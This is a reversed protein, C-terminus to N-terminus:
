SPELLFRRSAMLPPGIVGELTPGQGLSRILVAKFGTQASHWIQHRENSYKAVSIAANSMGITIPVHVPPVPRAAITVTGGPSATRNM